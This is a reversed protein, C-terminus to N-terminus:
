KQFYYSGRFSLKLESFRDGLFEKTAQRAGPWRDNSESEKTFDDFVILGGKVVKDYLNKLTDKYSQYLDGDVHLLAIPRDPHNPLSDSFFGKCIKIKSDSTNIGAEELITRTFDESYKYKGSPSGSWEGKQPKRFSADENSPEPFGEFSDYAYINRKGGENSNLIQNLASIVVLSRGRGVGCEVIDGKIAKIQIFFNWWYMVNGINGVNLQHFKEDIEPHHASEYKIINNM